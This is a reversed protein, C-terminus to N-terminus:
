HGFLKKIQKNVTDALNKAEVNAEAQEGLSLAPKSLTGTVSVPVSFNLKSGFIKAQGKVKVQYNIQKNALNVTGKGSAQLDKSQLIFDNNTLLGNKIDGSATIQSFHTGNNAVAQPNSQLFQRVPKILKLLDINNLIGNYATLKAKGNSSALLDQLQKGQVTVELNLDAPGKLIGSALLQSLETHALTANIRYQPLNNIHDAFFEGTIKGGAIQGNLNNVHVAELNQVEFLASLNDIALHNMKLVCQQATLQGKIKSWPTISFHVKVNKFNEIIEKLDKLFSVPPLQDTNLQNILLDGKYEANKSFGTGFIKGSAQLGGSALTFPDITIQQNALNIHVDGSLDVAQVKNDPYNARFTLRAHYFILKSVKFSGSTMSDWPITVEVQEAKGLSNPDFALPHLVVVDEFIFEVGSKEINWGTKGRLQVQLGSQKAIQSTLKAKFDYTNIYVTFFIALAIVIFFVFFLLSFFVKRIIM